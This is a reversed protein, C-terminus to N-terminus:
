SDLEIKAFDSKGHGKSATIFQLPFNEELMELLNSQFTSDLKFCKNLFENEPDANTKARITAVPM